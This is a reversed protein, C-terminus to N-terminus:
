YFLSQLINFTNGPPLPLKQMRMQSLTMATGNPGVVLDAMDDDGM